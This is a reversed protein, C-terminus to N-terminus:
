ENTFTLSVGFRESNPVTQVKAMRHILRFPLLIHCSHYRINRSMYQLIYNVLRNTSRSIYKFSYISILEPIQNVAKVSICTVHREILFVCLM